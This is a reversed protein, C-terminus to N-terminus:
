PRPMIRVEANDTFEHTFLRYHEGGYHVTVDLAAVLLTRAVPPALAAMLLGHYRRTNTDCITGSAFGGISNTMLWEQEIANAFTGCERRGLCIHTM